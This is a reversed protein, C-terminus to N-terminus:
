PEETKDPIYVLVDEVCAEESDSIEYKEKKNYQGFTLKVMGSTHPVACEPRM